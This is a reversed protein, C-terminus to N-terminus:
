KSNNLQKIAGSSLTGSAPPRRTLCVIKYITQLWLRSCATSPAPAQSRSGRPYKEM